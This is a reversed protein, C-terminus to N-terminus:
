NAGKEKAVDTDDKVKKKRGELDVTDELCTENVDEWTHRLSGVDKGGM